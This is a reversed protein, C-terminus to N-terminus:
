LATSGYSSTDIDKIYDLSGRHLIIVMANTNIGISWKSTNKLTQKTFYQLYAQYTNIIM